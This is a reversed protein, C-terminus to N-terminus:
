KSLIQLVIDLEELSSYKIVVNGTKNDNLKFEVKLGLKAQILDKLAKLDEAVHDSLAVSPTAPQKEINHTNPSKLLQEIQRVSLNEEVIKSALEQPNNTGVLVKAHGMSIKGESVLNIVQEPLELIRLINSIHSRSKGVKSGIEVHTYKYFNILKKYAQAEEIPNLNERQINEILAIKHSDEDGVQKVIVPIESLNAIQAARFRREGAIIQYKGDPASRVIIPTLIGEQKISDSLEKLAVEDFVTRPQDANPFIHHIKAYLINQVYNQGDLAGNLSSGLLDALGKGLNNKENSSM